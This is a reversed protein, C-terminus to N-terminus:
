FSSEFSLDSLASMARRAAAFVSVAATFVSAAASVSLLLDDFRWRRVRDFDGVRVFVGLALVPRPRECDLDDRFGDPRSALALASFFAFDPPLFTLNAAPVFGALAAAFFRRDLPRQAGEGRGDLFESLQGNGRKLIPDSVFM